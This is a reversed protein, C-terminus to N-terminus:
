GRLQEGRMREAQVRRRVGRETKRRCVSDRRPVRFQGGPGSDTEEGGIQHGATGEPPRHTASGDERPM